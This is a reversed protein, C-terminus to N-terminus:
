LASLLSSISSGSNGTLGLISSLMAGTNNNSYSNTREISALANYLDNNYNNASSSSGLATSITKLANNYTDDALGNLLNVLAYRKTLEDSELSSQKSLVDQAFSSVAKSRETEIKSLNDGFMSNDLNGFRSSINNELSTIMPNYTQNIDEIGSNKYANIQSQLSNETNTDFTNLQPLINALTSLAYNYIDAQDGSMNYSSSLVGNKVGTNATSDGVSVSSSSYSPYNASTVKSM